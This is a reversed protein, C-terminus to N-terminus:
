SNTHSSREALLAFADRIVARSVEFEEALEREIL